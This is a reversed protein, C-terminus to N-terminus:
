LVLLRSLVASSHAFSGNAALALAIFPSYIDILYNASAIFVFVLGCGFISTAVMSVMFQIFPQCTWAFWYLIIPLMVGSVCCFLLRVEPAAHRGGAAAKKKSYSYATISTMTLAVHSRIGIGMFSLGSDTLSWHRNQVLRNAIDYIIAIYLSFLLVIPELFLPKVLRLLNLRLLPLLRKQGRSMMCLSMARGIKKLVSSALRRLIAPAYTEPETLVGLLTMVGTFGFLTWFVDQRRHQMYQIVVGGIIPGLVPGHLEFLILGATAVTRQRHTSIDALTGVANTCV